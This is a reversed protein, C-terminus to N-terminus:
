TRNMRGRIGLRDVPSFKHHQIEIHTQALHLYMQTVDLTTHGLMLKLTMIDGGSMLYRVAFTHRVLDCHLRPVGRRKGLRKVAQSLASYTLRYGDETAFLADGDQAIVPRWTVLWQLLAKKTTNGFPVMREKQGKGFVKVYGEKLHTDEVSLGCLESARIGTDLLLLFVAYLRAGLLCRPNIAELLRRIEAESLIEIVPKPTNPRKLKSLVNNATFGEEFLWSSFAKLARVYGHITYASLKGEAKPRLPHEAFRETKSQLHAIFARAGDLNVQSLKANGGLFRDFGALKQEYWSVTKETRGEIRRTAVFLEILNPLTIEM